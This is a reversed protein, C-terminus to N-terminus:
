CLVMPIVRIPDAVSLYWRSSDSTADRPLADLVAHIRWKRERHRFEESYTIQFFLILETDSQNTLTIKAGPGSIDALTFTHGAAITVAPSVKWGQGLDRSAMAGFGETAMGGRGSEGTLNEPSISRTVADHLTTLRPMM